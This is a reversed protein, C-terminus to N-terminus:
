QDGTDGTANEAVKRSTGATKKAPENRVLAGQKLRTQGETVVREGSKVGKSVASNAGRVLAIQVDRKVVKNDPGVVYVFSGDQGPQVAVTPISVMNPMVGADLAVDVFM